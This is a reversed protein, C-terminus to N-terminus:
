WSPLQSIDLSELFAAFRARAPLLFESFGNDSRRGHMQGALHTDTSRAQEDDHKSSTVGGLAARGAPPRQLRHRNMPAAHTKRQLAVHTIPRLEAIPKSHRMVCMVCM